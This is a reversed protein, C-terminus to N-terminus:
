ISRGRKSTEQDSWPLYEVMSVGKDLIRYEIGRWKVVKASIAKVCGVLYCLQVPGMLLAIRGMVDIPLPALPTLNRKRLSVSVANRVLAYGLVSLGATTALAGVAALIMMFDLSLVAWVLCLDIAIALMASISAHLVTLPFTREYIKSWTLMRAIWDMAYKWSCDDRNVMLLAPNVVVKGGMQKAFKAIPGDDVISTKWDEILSSVVLDEYRVAMTGAWPHKLLVTPVLAGANWISRLMAGHSTPNPPEFWQNGTVVSVGADTLPGLLDALWTEHTVVDADVFAVWRTKQPLMDAAQILASCKLSCTIRRNELPVIKMRNEFDLRAKIEQLRTWAPDSKNDVVVLVSYERFNQKLLAAIAHELNPDTGRVSLVITASDQQEPALQECKATNIRHLLLAAFAANITVGIVVAWLFIAM